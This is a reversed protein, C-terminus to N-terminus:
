WSLQKTLQQFYTELSVQKKRSFCAYHAKFKRYWHSKCLCHCMKKLECKPFLCKWSCSVMVNQGKFLLCSYKNQDLASMGVSPALKTIRWLMIDASLRSLFPFSTLWIWAEFGLTIICLMDQVTQWRRSRPCVTNVTIKVQSPSSGPLPLFYHGAWQSSSIALM